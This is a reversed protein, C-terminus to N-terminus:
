ILLNCLVVTQEILCIADTLFFTLQQCAERAGCYQNSQLLLMNEKWYVAAARYVLRCWELQCGRRATTVTTSTTHLCCKIGHSLSSRCLCSSTSTVVVSVVVLRCPHCSPLAPLTSPVDTPLTISWFTQM